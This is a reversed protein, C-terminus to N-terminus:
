PSTAAEFLERSTGVLARYSRHAERVFDEATRVNASPFIAAGFRVTAGPSTPPRVGRALTSLRSAAIHAGMLDTEPLLVVFEDTDLRFVRDAGRLTGRVEGILKSVYADCPERGLELRLGQYDDFGFLLLSAARGYRRARALEADLSAKVQAYTGAGTLPDVARLASLEEEAAELRRRYQRVKLAAGVRTQLEILKFPKTVYDDAGLEMGKLKGEIDGMATLIIVPLEKWAASERIIKLVAFGDKFPMMLDLLVLDPVEKALAELALQGNEALSTRYGAGECLDRLLNRTHEDDDVVLVHQLFPNSL